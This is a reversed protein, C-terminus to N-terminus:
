EAFMGRYHRYWDSQFLESPDHKKKLALFEPFQPYCAEVQHKTAFRHYTLFYSGGRAIALDILARFAAAANEKGEATHEVLLNFIVCGYSERAWPLFSETDKEILRVTGYIVIAGRSRLERAADELFAPLEARPVYLESIMLSSPTTSGSLQQVRQAYDPLYPGLQHTDSWYTQGNTSLYHDTYKQFARARDTHALHLLKLWSSEDLSRAAPEPASREAPRYCSFVGRRLFDDSQEDISFQFDGYLFGEDIRNAFQEPLEDRSIVKVVRELCRRPTLRLTVESIIGFLGYGGIALGFLDFNEERSCRVFEGNSKLLTFAEVDQILPRMRLGRGHANASLSGGLTFTDAGTQKQAIGWASRGDSQAAQYGALLAPWQIGAQVHILGRDREFAVVQNLERLDILLGDTAFQQGGMAHRCGALAIPTNKTAADRVLEQLEGFARPVAIKAVRTANLSSHIDNVWAPGSDTQEIM